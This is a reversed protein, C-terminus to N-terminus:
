GGSESDYNRAFQQAEYRWRERQQRLQDAATGTLSDLFFEGDPNRLTNPDFMANESALIRGAPTVVVWRSDGNLLNVQTRREALEDEVISDRPQFDYRQHFETFSVDASNANEVRGVLLFVPEVRDLKRGDIYVAEVSGNPAFVISASRDGESPDLDIGVNRPFQIAEATTRSPSTTTTPQRRIRYPRGGRPLLTSSPETYLPPRGRWTLWRASVVKQARLYEAGTLKDEDVPPDVDPDNDTDDIDDFDNVVIEFLEQGIQITDGTGRAHPYGDDGIVMYAGRFMLPPIGHSLDSPDTPDFYMGEGGVGEGFAINVLPPENPLIASAMSAGATSLPAYFQYDGGGGGGVQYVFGCASDTSFGTFAPPEAVMFAELAMGNGSFEGPEREGDNDLDTWNSVESYSVGVSRGDRAAQAQAQALLSVLQRAGERIKRADNNPSVLPLVGALLTVLIVITVLLEILTLGRAAHNEIKSKRNQISESDFGFGLIWFGVRKWMMIPLYIRM